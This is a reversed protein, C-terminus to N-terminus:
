DDDHDEFYVADSKSAIMFRPLDQTPSVKYLEQFFRNNTKQGNINDKALKLNRIIMRITNILHSDEMMVIPIRTGDKQTHIKM